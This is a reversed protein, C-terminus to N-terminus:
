FLAPAHFKDYTWRIARKILNNQVTLSLTVTDTTVTTKEVEFIAVYDRKRTSRRSIVVELVANQAGMTSDLWKTIQSSGNPIILNARPLQGEVQDSLKLRFPFPVYTTYGLVFEENDDVLCLPLSITPATIKILSLLRDNSALSNVNIKFDENM